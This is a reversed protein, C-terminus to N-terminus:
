EEGEGAPPDLGTMPVGVASERMEAELAAGVRITRADQDAAVGVAKEKPV